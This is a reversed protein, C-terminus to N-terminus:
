AKLLEGAKELRKLTERLIRRAEPDTAAPGRRRDLATNLEGATRYLRRLAHLVPDDIPHGLPPLHHRKRYAQVERRLAEVDLDKRVALGALRNKDRANPVGLLQRGAEAEPRTTTM